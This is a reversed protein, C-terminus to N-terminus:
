RLMASQNGASILATVTIMFMFAVSATVAFISLISGAVDNICNAIRAECIPELVACAAKYLAVLALIKILPIICIIILGLMVAFGAANKILLTCGIVTDAADSITKGVIPIFTGIAFKAAKSTVGDVVAGLTGQLSVIAVFATMITGMGWTIIQKIFAALKSFQIRNSINNVASIITSLFIMPIFISRILTASIQVALLMVPHLIGGTTINGGSILLAILVPVTTYMFSVMKSIIDSSLQVATSFSVLLISIILIYCVYFAIESTSENLFSSQINKLLSCIVILFALKLLIGLNLYIEKFLIKIISNAINSYDFVFKGGSVDRIIDEPKYGDLIEINEDDIYKYLEDEITGIGESASQKEIIDPVTNDQGAGAAFSITFSSVVLILIICIILRFFNHTKVIHSGIARGYITKM